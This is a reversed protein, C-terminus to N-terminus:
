LSLVLLLIIIAFVIINELVLFIWYEFTRKRECHIHIEVISGIGGGLIVSIAIGLHWALITSAIDNTKKGYFSFFYCFCVQAVFFGAIQGDQHKWKYAAIASYIFSILTLIIFTEM